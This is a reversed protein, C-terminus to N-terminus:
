TYSKVLPIAAAKDGMSSPVGTLGHLSILLLLLVTAVCLGHMCTYLHKSVRHPLQLKVCIRMCMRQHEQVLDWRLRYRANRSRMHRM